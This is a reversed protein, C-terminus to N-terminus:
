KDSGKQKEDMARWGRQIAGKLFDDTIYSMGYRDAMMAAYGAAQNFKEEGSKGTFEKEAWEVAMDAVNAMIGSDDKDIVKKLKHKVKPAFYSIAGGVVVVVLSILAETLSSMFANM